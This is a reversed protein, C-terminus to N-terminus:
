RFLIRDDIHKVTLADQRGAYVLAHIVIPNAPVDGLVDCAHHSLCVVFRNDDRRIIIIHVSVVLKHGIQSVNVHLVFGAINIRLIHGSLLATVKGIEDAIGNHRIYIFVIVDMGVRLMGRQCASGQASEFGEIRNQSMGVLEAGAANQGSGKIHKGVFFPIAEEAIFHIHVIRRQQIEVCSSILSIVAVHRFGHVVLQDFSAIRLVLEYEAFIFRSLMHDLIPSIDIGFEQLSYKRLINRGKRKTNGNMVFIFALMEFLIKLIQIDVQVFNLRAVEIKVVTFCFPFLDIGIPPASHREVAECLLGVIEGFPRSKLHLLYFSGIDVAYCSRETYM